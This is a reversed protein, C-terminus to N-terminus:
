VITYDERVSNQFAYYHVRGKGIREFVKGTFGQQHTATIDKLILVESQKIRNEFLKECLLVPAMWVNIALDDVEVDLICSGISVGSPIGIVREGTKPTLRTMLCWAELLTGAAKLHGSEVIGYEDADDREVTATFVTLAGTHRTESGLDELMRLGAFARKIAPNEIPGDISAWSWSPACFAQARKHQAGTTRDAQWLLHKLFEDEWLGAVYVGLKGQEGYIRAIGALAPLKDGGVTLSRKTYENIADAWANHMLIKSIEGKLEYVNNFLGLGYPVHHAEISDGEHVASERCEWHFLEPALHLFRASMAREQFTWGRTSLPSGDFAKDFDQFQPTIFVQYPKDSAYPGSTFPWPIPVAIRHRATRQPLLPGDVNSASLGGITLAARSYVKHMLAAERSWDERDGQIICLADIWIYRIGLKRAITVADRHTRPMSSLTIGDIREQINASTTVMQTRTQGWCYSLAIYQSQDDDKTIRLRVTADDDDGVDVVRTPLHRAHADRNAWASCRPHSSHCRSIWEKVNSWNRDDEPSPSVIRATFVKRLTEPARSRSEDDFGTRLTVLLQKEKSFIELQKGGFVQCRLKRANEDPVEASINHLYNFKDPLRPRAAETLILHCLECEGAAAELSEWSSHHWWHLPQEPPDTHNQTSIYIMRPILWERALRVCTHCLAM